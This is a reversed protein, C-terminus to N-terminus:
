IIKVVRGRYMIQDNIKAINMLSYFVQFYEPFLSRGCGIKSVSYAGNSEDVIDVNDKSLLKRNIKTM